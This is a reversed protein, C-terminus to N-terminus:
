PGIEQARQYELVPAVIEERHRDYDKGENYKHYLKMGDQHPLLQSVIQSTSLEAFPGGPEVMQVPAVPPVTPEAVRIDQGGGFLSSEDLILPEQEPPAIKKGINEQLQNEKTSHRAPAVPGNARTRCPQKCPHSLNESDMQVPAVPNIEEFLNSKCSKKGHKRTWAEHDLVSFEAVTRKGTKRDTGSNKTPVLWGKNVLSKRLRYIHDKSEGSFREATRRGDCFLRGSGFSLKRYQVWLGFEACTM